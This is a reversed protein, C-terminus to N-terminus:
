ITLFLYFCRQVCGNANCAAVRKVNKYVHYKFIAWITRFMYYRYYTGLYLDRLYLQTCLHKEKNRVSNGIIPIFYRVWNNLATKSLPYKGACHFTACVMRMKFFPSGGLSNVDQRGILMKGM